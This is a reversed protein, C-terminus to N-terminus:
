WSSVVMSDNTIFSKDILGNDLVINNSVQVYDYVKESYDAKYRWKSSKKYKNTDYWYSETICDECTYGNNDEEYIIDFSKLSDGIYNYLVIGMWREEIVEFLTYSFASDNSIQVSYLYRSHINSQRKEPLFFHISDNVVHKIKDTNCSFNSFTVYSFTDIGRSVGVDVM